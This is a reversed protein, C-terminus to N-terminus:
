LEEWQKAVFGRIPGAKLLNEDFHVHYTNCNITVSRAICAGFFHYTAGDNIVVNASPAYIIGV